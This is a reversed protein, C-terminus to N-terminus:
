ALTRRATSARETLRPSLLTAEPVATGGLKRMLLEVAREGLEASPLAV